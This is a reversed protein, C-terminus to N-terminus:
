PSRPLFPDLLIPRVRQPSALCTMWYKFLPIDCSSFGVALLIKMMDDPTHLPRMTAEAIKIRFKSYIRKINNAACIITYNERENPYKIVQQVVSEPPCLDGKYVGDDVNFVPLGLSDLERTIVISYKLIGFGKGEGDAYRFPKEFPSLISL